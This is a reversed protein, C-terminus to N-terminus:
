NFVKYKNQYNTVSKLLARWELEENKITFLHRRFSCQQSLYALFDPEKEGRVLLHRLEETNKPSYYGAYDSGLLGVSGEIRSAIIPVEAAIAESIVNAGGEMISSLVMLHTKAFERRVEWAKVEGRWIYRKNCAMEAKAEKAWRSTNAKGLHIVRLRSNKEINRVAYAARLPDKEERLNGVVCVDFTRKSPCRAKPLPEASQHVTFLKHIYKAPISNRVEDHLCVLIDAIEMSNFTKQPHSHQFKYIDTGSLLVILPKDSFKERFKKASNASRWAHIAIMLDTPTEDWETAVHVQHGIRNLIKKWRVATTRNGNKALHGAPTIITINM